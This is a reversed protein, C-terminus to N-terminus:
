RVMEEWKNALIVGAWLMAIGIAMGPFSWAECSAAALLLGGCFLVFVLTYKIYKM